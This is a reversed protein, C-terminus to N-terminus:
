SQRAAIGRIVDYGAETQRQVKLQTPSSSTSGLVQTGDM